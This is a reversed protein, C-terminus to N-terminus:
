CRTRRAGARGRRAQYTAPGPPLPSRLRARGVAVDFQRWLGAAAARAGPLAPRPLSQLSVAGGYADEEAARAAEAAAADALTAQGLLRALSALELAAGVGWACAGGADSAPRRRRQGTSM